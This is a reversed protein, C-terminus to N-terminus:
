RWWVAMGGGGGAGVSAAGSGSCTTARWAKRQVGASMAAARAACWMAGMSCPVSGMSACCFWKQPGGAPSM